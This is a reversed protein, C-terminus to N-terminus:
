FVTQALLGQFSLSPTCAKSNNTDAFLVEDFHGHEWDIEQFSFCDVSWNNRDEWKSGVDVVQIRPDKRSLHAPVITLNHERASKFIELANAPKTSGKELFATNNSSDTLWLVTKLHHERREEM